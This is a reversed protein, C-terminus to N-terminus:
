LQRAGPLFLCLLRLNRERAEYKFTESLQKKIM